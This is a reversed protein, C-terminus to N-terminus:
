YRGNAPNIPDRDRATITEAHTPQRGEAICTELLEIYAAQRLIKRRMDAYVEAHAIAANEIYSQMKAIREAPTETALRAALIERPTQPKDM